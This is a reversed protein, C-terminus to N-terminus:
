FETVDARSMLRGKSLILPVIILIDCILFGIVGIRSAYLLYMGKQQYLLENMLYTFLFVTAFGGLCAIFDMSLVEAAVKAKVERNSRGLAKYIGFEYSRKLYQGTVVSNITVALVIAILIDITYFLIYFAEFQPLIVDRASSTVQVKRDGALDKVYDYLEEGEMSDSYIYIRGLTDNDEYIYFTCFGGDEIIADVSYEGNLNKDFSQDLKDGLKIGRDKALNRGIIISGDKCNSFDGEIGLRDFAKQMDQVSNFVYAWGGLEINLISGHRLGSFGQASSMLIELKDDEGAARTFDAFDQFEEDTSQINVVVLKDSYEFEKEFTHITSQIYNGGLFMLTAMFMMFICLVARGRNEKMYYFASFPKRNKM